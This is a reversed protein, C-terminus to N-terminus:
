KKTVYYVKHTKKDNTKYKVFLKIKCNFDKIDGQYDIYGVLIVGSPKKDKLLDQKEDFIGISPFVDTTQKNHIVIAEINKIDEKVDDIIVQYRVEDNTLKDYKVEIEFPIEKSSKNINKLSQIYKIYTDKEKALEQDTCGTLFLVSIILIIIIKKM